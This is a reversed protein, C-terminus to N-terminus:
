HGPSATGETATQGNIKLTCKGLNRVNLGRGSVTIELQNRSIARSQLPPTPTLRGPRQRFFHLRTPENTVPGDVRGLIQPKGPPVFAIEGIREPDTAHWAIVLALMPPTDSLRPSIGDGTAQDLTIHEDNM